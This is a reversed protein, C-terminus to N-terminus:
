ILGLFLGGPRGRDGKQNQNSSQTNKAGATGYFLTCPSGLITYCCFCIIAAARQSVVMVVIYIDWEVVAIVGGTSGIQVSRDKTFM